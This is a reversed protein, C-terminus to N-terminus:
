RRGAAPAGDVPLATGAGRDLARQYVESALSVDWSGVGQSCFVTIAEDGHPRVWRDPGAEDASAVTEALTAVDAWAVVGHEVAFRLDGSEQQAQRVDDVYVRAARRFVEDDGERRGPHNSGALVVHTGPRLDTGALVPDTAATMTVVVDARTIADAPRDVTRATIGLEGHLRKAFDQARQPTRSWVLVHGLERVAAVAQVQTWAQYGAGLCALVRSDPRALLDASVGTAAGTRLQGLRDAELLCRLVGAHDFLLLWFKAAGAGTVYVKAGLWGRDQGIGGAVVFPGASGGMVNLVLSGLHARQRIANQAQGDAQAHLARRVAGIADEMSVLATVDSEDLFLM